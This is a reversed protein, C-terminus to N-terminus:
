EPRAAGPPMPIGERLTGESRAPLSAAVESRTVEALVLVGEAMLREM